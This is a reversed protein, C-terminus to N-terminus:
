KPTGHRVSPQDGAHELLAFTKVYLMFMFLENEPGPRCCVWLFVIGAVVDEGACLARLLVFMALVVGVTRAAVPDM